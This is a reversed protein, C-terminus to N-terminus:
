GNVKDMKPEVAKDYAAIADKAKNLLATEVDNTSDYYTIVAKMQDVMIKIAYDIKAKDEAGQIQTVEVLIDKVDVKDLKQFPYKKIHSSFVAGQSDAMEFRLYDSKTVGEYLYQGGNNFFITLADTSKDYISACINSSAYISKTKNDQEQTKLLM